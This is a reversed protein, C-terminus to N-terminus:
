DNHTYTHPKNGKKGVTGRRPIGGKSRGIRRHKTLLSPILPRMLLAVSLPVGYKFRHDKTIVSRKDYEAYVIDSGFRM